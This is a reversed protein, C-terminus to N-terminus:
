LACSVKGGIKKMCLAMKERTLGTLYFFNREGRFPYYEDESVHLFIGSYLIAMSNDALLAALDERHKSVSM